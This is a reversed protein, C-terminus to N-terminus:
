FEYEFMSFDVKYRAEVAHRTGDDYYERYPRRNPTKNIEPPEPINIELVHSLKRVDNSMTECHGVFDMKYGELFAYQSRFHENAESDPIEAVRGVFEQFTMGKKFGLKKYGDYVGNDFYRKSFETPQNIQNEYTSVLRDFPNRVFAIKFYNEPERIRDLLWSQATVRDGFVKFSKALSNHGNKHIAFFVVGIKYVVLM